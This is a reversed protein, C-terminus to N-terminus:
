LGVSHFDFCVWCKKVINEVTWVNSVYIWYDSISKSIFGGVINNLWVCLFMKTCLHRSVVAVSGFFFYSKLFFFVAKFIKYQHCPRLWQLVDIIYMESWMGQTPGPWTASYFCALSFIASYAIVWVPGSSLPVPRWYLIYKWIVAPWVVHYICLIKNSGDIRCGDRCSPRMAPYQM